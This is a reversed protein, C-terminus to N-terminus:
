DSTVQGPSLHLGTEMKTVKDRSLTAQGERHGKHHLTPALIVISTQDGQPEHGNPVNRQKTQGFRPLTPNGLNQHFQPHPHGETEQLSLVALTRLFVNSGEKIGTHERLAFMSQCQAVGARMLERFSSPRVQCTSRISISLFPPRNTSSPSFTTPIRSKRTWPGNSSM